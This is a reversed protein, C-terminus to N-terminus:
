ERESGSKSGEAPSSSELQSVPSLSSSRRQQEERVNNAVGDLIEEDGCIEGWIRAADRERAARDESATCPERFTTYPLFSRIYEVVENPMFWGIIQRDKDHAYDHSGRVAGANIRRYITSVFVSATITTVDGSSSTQLAQCQAGSSNHVTKCAKAIGGMSDTRRIPRTFSPTRSRSGTFMEQNM